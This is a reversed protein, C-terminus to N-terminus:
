SYSSNERQRGQKGELIETAIEEGVGEGGGRVESWPDGDGSWGDREMKRRRGVRGEVEGGGEGEGGRVGEM